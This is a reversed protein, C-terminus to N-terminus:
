IGTGFQNRWMTLDSADVDSGQVQPLAVSHVLEFGANMLVNFAEACSMDPAVRPTGPGKVEVAAVRSPLSAVAPYECRVIATTGFRVRNTHAVNAPLAAATVLLGVISGALILRKSM